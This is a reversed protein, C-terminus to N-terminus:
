QGMGHAFASRGRNAHLRGLTISVRQLPGQGDGPPMLGLPALLHSVLEAVHGRHILQVGLVDAFRAM